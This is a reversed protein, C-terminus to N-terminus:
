RQIVAEAPCVEMCNGCHLCHEQEIVAPIRSFDICQQPCVTRCLQCGTCAQTIEYGEPPIHEGGISFSARDIPRKSLDFYEGTGEYLRFVTLAQRSLDTPYIEYMYPNKELLRKLPEQGLEETKGRVSVTKSSLTDSGKLGTMAAYGSQKLRTYLDKGRATLFYIGKKDWDMLDVACTMPLGNEDATAMVVTHIEEVLFRLYNM